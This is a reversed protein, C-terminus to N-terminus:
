RSALSSMTFDFHHDSETGGVIKVFREQIVTGGNVEAEVRILYDDWVEGAQLSATKFTRMSGVSKTSQGDLSVIAGDPVHIRVITDSLDKPEEEDGTDDVPNEKVLTKQFDLQHNTGAQMKVVAQDTMEIGDVVYSVEIRYTYVEDEGLNISRFHRLNGKSTTAQGNVTIEANKPVSITLNAVGNELEPQDVPESDSSTPNSSTETPGDAELTMEYSDSDIRGLSQEISPATDTSDDDDRHQYAPASAGGSSGGSCGYTVGGSSGHSLYTPEHLWQFFRRIPGSHYYVQGGSSGHDVVHSRVIYGGSSGSGGSSGGSASSKWTGGYYRVRLHGSSGQSGHHVLWGGSSGGSSGGFSGGSSGWTLEEADVVGVCLVIAAAILVNHAWMM